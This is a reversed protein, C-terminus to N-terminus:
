HKESENERAKWQLLGYKAMNKLNQWILEGTWPILRDHWRQPHFTFMVMEPFTGEKIANIIDYTSHYVPFSHDRQVIEKQSFFTANSYPLIPSSPNFPKDRVVSRNGDWHRGTDTYYAVRSFDIDFYPEGILSFDRYNYRTWLLRSDWPSLPSGHMCITKIDAYKRLFALNVAFSEISEELLKDLFGEPDKVNEKKAKMAAATLAVDEYHYGIEHGLGAIVEITKPHFSEPVIRFYYTGRIGLSNQIQAFRLSGLPRKDVDHRLLVAKKTPTTCYDVFRYLLHPSIASLLYSYTQM